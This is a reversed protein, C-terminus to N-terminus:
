PTVTYFSLEDVSGNTVTCGTIRAPTTGLGWGTANPEDEDSSCYDWRGVTCCIVAEPSKHFTVGSVNSSFAIESGVDDGAFAPSFTMTQVPAGALAAATEFDEQSTFHMVTLPAPRPKGKLRQAYLGGCAAVTTAAWIILMSTTKM